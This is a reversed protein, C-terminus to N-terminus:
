VAITVLLKFLTMLSRVESVMIRVMGVMRPENKPMFTVIGKPLKGCVNATITRRAVPPIARAANM